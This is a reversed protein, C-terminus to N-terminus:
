KFAIDGMGIKWLSHQKLQKWPALFDVEKESKHFFHNNDTVARRKGNKDNYDVM